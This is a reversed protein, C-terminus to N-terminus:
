AHFVDSLAMYSLMVKFDVYDYKGGKPRMIIKSRM